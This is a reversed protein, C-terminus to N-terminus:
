QLTAEEKSNNETVSSRVGRVKAVGSNFRRRYCQAIVLTYLPCLPTTSAVPMRLLGEGELLAVREERAYRGSSSCYRCKMQAAVFMRAERMALLRRVYRAM